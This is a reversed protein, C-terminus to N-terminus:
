TRGRRWWVACVALDGTRVVLLQSRSSSVAVLPCICDEEVASSSVVPFCYLLGACTLTANANSVDRERYLLRTSGPQTHERIRRQKM